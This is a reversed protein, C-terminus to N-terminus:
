HACQATGDANFLLFLFFNFVVLLSKKKYIVVKTLKKKKDEKKEHQHLFSISKPHRVAHKGLVNRSGNTLNSEFNEFYMMVLRSVKQTGNAM